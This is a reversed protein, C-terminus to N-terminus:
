GKRWKQTGAKALSVLRPLPPLIVNDLMVGVICLGTAWLLDAIFILIIFQCYKVYSFPYM